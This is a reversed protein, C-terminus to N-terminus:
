ESRHRKSPSPTRKGSRHPGREDPAGKRDNVGASKRKGSSGKRGRGSSDTRPPSPSVASAPQSAPHPVLQASPSPPPTYPGQVPPVWSSSSSSSAAQGSSQHFFPLVSPPPPPPLPPPPQAPDFVLSAALDHYLSFPIGDDGASGPAASTRSCLAFALMTEITAAWAWHSGPQIPNEPGACHVGVPLITGDEEPVVLLAGSDGPMLHEDEPPDEKSHHTKVVRKYRAHYENQPQRELPDHRFHEMLHPVVYPPRSLLYYAFRQEVPLNYYRLKAQGIRIKLEHLTGRFLLRPLDAAAIRMPKSIFFDLFAGDADDEGGKARNWNGFFVSHLGDDVPCRHHLTTRYDCRLALNPVRLPMHRLTDPVGRRKCHFRVAFKTRPPHTAFYAKWQEFHLKTRLTLLDFPELIRAWEPDNQLADTLTFLARRRQEQLQDDDYEVGVHFNTVLRVEEAGQGWQLFFSIAGRVGNCEELPLKGTDSLQAPPDLCCSLPEQFSNISGPKSRLPKWMYTVLLQNPTVLLENATLSPSSKLGPSRPLERRQQYKWTARGARPRRANLRDILKGEFQEVATRWKSDWQSSPALPLEQAEISVFLQNPLDSDYDVGLVQGHLNQESLLERALQLVVPRVEAAMQQETLASGSQDSRAETKRDEAGTKGDTAQRKASVLQDDAPPATAPRKAMEAGYKEVQLVQGARCEAAHADCMFCEEGSPLQVKQLEQYADDNAGRADEVRQMWQSFERLADFDAAADSPAASHLGVLAATLRDLGCRSLPETPSSSSLARQAVQLSYLLVPRLAHWDAPTMTVTAPDPKARHMKGPMECMLYLRCRLSQMKQLELDTPWAPVAEGDSLPTLFLIRPCLPLALRRGIRLWYNLASRQMQELAQQNRPDTNLTRLAYNFQAEVHMLPMSSFRLVPSDARPSSPPSVLTPSVSLQSVRPAAAPPRRGGSPPGSSAPGSATRTARPHSPVPGSSKPSMPTAAASAASSPPPPQSSSGALRLAAMHQALEADPEAFGVMPFWDDVEIERRCQDCLIRKKPPHSLLEATVEWWRQQCHPCAISQTATLNFYKQLVQWVMDALLACLSNPATGAVVVHIYRRAPDDHQALEPKDGGRPAHEGEKNARQLMATHDDKKLVAVDAWCSHKMQQHKVTFKHTRFILRSMLNAPVFSLEFLMCRKAPSPELQAKIENWERESPQGSLLAPVLEYNDYLGFSLEFRHMLHLMDHMHRAVDSGLRSKWLRELEKRHLVGHNVHVDANASAVAHAATKATVVTDTETKATVMALTETKATVVTRADTNATVLVRAAESLWHPNLVCVDTFASVRYRLLTGWYNLTEIAALASATPIFCETAWEAVEKTPVLHKIDKQRRRVLADLKVWSKPLPLQGLRAAKRAIDERLLRVKEDERAGPVSREPSETHFVDLGMGSSAFEEMLERQIRPVSNKQAKTCSASHSAVLIVTAQVVCSRISRLWYSLAAKQNSLKPNWVLLYISRESLFLQHTAYYSHQGAFDWTSLSVETGDPGPALLKWEDTIEIGETPAPKDVALGGRLARLLSTKGAGGYGVLMLKVRHCVETDEPNSHLYQLLSADTLQTVSSSLARALLRGLRNPGIRIHALHVNERILRIVDAPSHPAWTSAPGLTLSQLDRHHSLGALLAEWDEDAFNCEVRLQQLHVQRHVANTVALALSTSHQESGTAKIELSTVIQEGSRLPKCAPLLDEESGELTVIPVIRSPLTPSGPVRLIIPDVPEDPSSLPM